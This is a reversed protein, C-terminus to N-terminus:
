RAPLDPYERNYAQAPVSSSFLLSICGCSASLDGNIVQEALEPREKKLQKLLRTATQGESVVRTNRPKNDDTVANKNGVPAGVPKAKHNRQSSPM